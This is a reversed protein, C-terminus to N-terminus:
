ECVTNIRKPTVGSNVILPVSAAAEIDLADIEDGKLPIGSETAGVAEEGEAVKRDRRGGPFTRVPIPKHSIPPMQVTNFVHLVHHYLEDPIEYSLTRHVTLDTDGTDSSIRSFEHFEANFMHEWISLAAQATIFRGDRTINVVVINNSDDTVPADINVITSYNTLYGTLVDTAEPNSVMESLEERTLHNGYNPSHVDSIDDVLARLEDMNKMQVEFVVEHVASTDARSGKRIDHRIDMNAHFIRRRSSHRTSDRDAPNVRATAANVWSLGILLLAWLGSCRFARIM